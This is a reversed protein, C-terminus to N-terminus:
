GGVKLINKVFACRKSLQSTHRTRHLYNKSYGMLRFGGDVPLTIGTVYDSAQSALIVCAGALEETKGPRGVPIKSIIANETNQILSCPACHTRDQVM